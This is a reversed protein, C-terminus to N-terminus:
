EEEKEKEKESDEDEDDFEPIENPPLRGEKKIWEEEIMADLNASFIKGEQSGSNLIGRTITNWGKPLEEFDMLQAEKYIYEALDDIVKKPDDERPQEVKVM